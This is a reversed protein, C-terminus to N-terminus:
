YVIIRRDATASSVGTEVFVYVGKGLKKVYVYLEAPDQVTCTGLYKGKESYVNYTHRDALQYTSLSPNETVAFSNCVYLCGAVFLFAIKKM